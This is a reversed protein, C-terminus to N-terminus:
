VDQVQEEFEIGLSFSSFSTPHCDRPRNQKNPVGNAEGRGTVLMSDKNQEQSSGDQDGM